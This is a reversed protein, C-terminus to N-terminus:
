AGAPMSVLLYALYAAYAGLLAAGSARNITRRGAILAVTFGAGVGIMIWFDVGGAFQPGVGFPRVTAAAGTVLLTNFINSGV